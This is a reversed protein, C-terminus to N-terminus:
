VVFVRGSMRVISSISSLSSIPLAPPQVIPYVPLAPLMSSISSLSSIPLAPPQVIPDVPLAPLMSSISTLSSIPLAPPQGGSVLNQPDPGSATNFLEKWIARTNSIDREARNKALLLWDAMAALENTLDSNCSGEAPVPLGNLVTLGSRYTGCIKQRARVFDEAYAAPGVWALHSLSHILIVSGAPVVFNKLTDLLIKTLDGLSGEELGLIRLCEGEGGTPMCTPLSPNTWWSLCPPPATNM